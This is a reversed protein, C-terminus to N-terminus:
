TFNESFFFIYFAIFYTTYSLSVDLHGKLTFTCPAKVAFPQTESPQESSEDDTPLIVDPDQALPMEEADDEDTRNLPM